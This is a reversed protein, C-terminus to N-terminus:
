VPTIRRDSFWTNIREILVVVTDNSGTSEISRTPETIKPWVTSLSKESARRM